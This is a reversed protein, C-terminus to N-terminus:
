GGGRGGPSLTPTGDPDLFYLDARGDGDLDGAAMAGDHGSVITTITEAEGELGGAGPLVVLRAPPAPPSSSSGRGPRSGPRAPSCGSPTGRSSPTSPSSWPRGPSTSRGCTPGPTAPAM